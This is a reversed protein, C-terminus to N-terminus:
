RHFKGTQFGPRPPEAAGARILAPLAESAAGAHFTTPAAAKQENDM